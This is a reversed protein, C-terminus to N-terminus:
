PTKEIFLGFTLPAIIDDDLEMGAGKLAVKIQGHHYADHWLLHQMLLVPHDFHQRTPTGTVILHRVADRVMQASDDLMAAIRDRDREARWEGMPMPRAFDPANEGVWFLRNHHLHMFMGGVTPSTPTARVVLGNAPVARMLNVLSRNNRDWSDLLADLLSDFTPTTM